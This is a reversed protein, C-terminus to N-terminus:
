TITRLSLRPGATCDSPVVCPEPHYLKQPVLSNTVHNTLAVTMRGSHKSRSMVGSALPLTTLTSEMTTMTIM